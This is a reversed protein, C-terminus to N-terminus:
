KPPSYADMEWSVELMMKFKNVAPDWNVPLLDNGSFYFSVINNNIYGETYHPSEPRLNFKNNTASYSIVDIIDAPSYSAAFCSNRDQTFGEMHICLGQPHNNVAVDFGFYLLGIRLKKSSKIYPFQSFFKTLDYTARYKGSTEKSAGDSHLLVKHYERVM